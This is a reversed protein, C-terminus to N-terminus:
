DTDKSQEVQSSQIGSSESHSDAAVLTAITKTKENKDKKNTIYCTRINCFFDLATFFVSPIFIRYVIEAPSIYAATSIIWFLGSTGVFSLIVKMWPNNTIASLSHGDIYCLSLGFYFFAIFIYFFFTSFLKGRLTHDGNALAYYANMCIISGPQLGVYTDHIDTLFDGIVVIKGAIDEAIPEIDNMDLLDSGLNLINYRVKEGENMQGKKVKIPMKLTIGNRCLFPFDDCYFFPGWQHITKGCIDEYMKLPVSKVGDHIYQYHAFNTEVGTVTYDANASMPYLISDELAKNEHIPIVIRKMGAIQHFLASDQESRIGKEFIVDLFIYKYNDAEAAIKLFDLLKQRDTIVYQGVFEPQKTYVNEKEYDVLQKDYAVDVLMVEDPVSDRNVGRISKLQDWGQLIKIEDPLPFSTNDVFYCILLLLISIAGSIFMKKKGVKTIM